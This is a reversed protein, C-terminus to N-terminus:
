CFLIPVVGPQAFTEGGIEGGEGGLEVVAAVGEEGGHPAGAGVDESQFLTGGSDGHDVVIEGLNLVPAGGQGDNVLLAAPGEVHEAADDPGLLEPGSDALIVPSEAIGVRGGFVQPTDHFLCRARIEAPEELLPE